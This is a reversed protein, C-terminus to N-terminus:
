EMLGVAPRVEVSLLAVPLDYAGFGVDEEDYLAPGRLGHRRESGNESLYCHVTSQCIRRRHEADPGHGDGGYGKPKSLAISRVKRTKKPVKRSAAGLM